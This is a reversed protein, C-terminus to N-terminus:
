QNENTKWREIQDILAKLQSIAEDKGILVAVDLGELVDPLALGTRSKEDMIVQMDETYDRRDSSSIYIVINQDSSNYVSLYETEKGEINVLDM